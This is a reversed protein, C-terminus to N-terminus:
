YTQKQFDQIIYKFNIGWIKFLHLYHPILALSYFLFNILIPWIVGVSIVVLNTTEPIIVLFIIVELIVGILFLNTIWFLYINLLWMRNCGKTILFFNLNDIRKRKVFFYYIIGLNVIIQFCFGLGELLSNLNFDLTLNFSNLFDFSNVFGNFVMALLLSLALFILAKLNSNNFFVFTKFFNKIGIKFRHAMPNLDQYVSYVMGSVYYNKSDSIKIVSELLNFAIDNTYIFCFFKEEISKQQLFNVFKKIDFKQIKSPSIWLHVFSPKKYLLKKYIVEYQIHEPLNSFIEFAFNQIGLEKLIKDVNVNIKHSNLSSFYTEEYFIDFVTKNTLREFEKNTLVSIEKSIFISRQLESLQWFITNEYVINGAMPSRVGCTASFLESIVELNEDYLVYLGPNNFELWLGNHLRDEINKTICGEVKFTRM